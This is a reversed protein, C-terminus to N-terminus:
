FPDNGWIPTFISFIQFWWRPTKNSILHVELSEFCMPSFEDGPGMNRRKAFFRSIAGIGGWM